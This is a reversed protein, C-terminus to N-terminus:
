LLGGETLKKLEIMKREYLEKLRVNTERSFGSGHELELNIRKIGGGLKNILKELEEKSMGAYAWHRDLEGEGDAQAAM